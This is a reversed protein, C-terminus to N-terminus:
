GYIFQVQRHDFKPLFSGVRREVNPFHTGQEERERVKGGGIV